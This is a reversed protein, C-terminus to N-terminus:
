IHMDSDVFRLPLLADIGNCEYIGETGYLLIRVPHGFRDEVGSIVQRCAGCPSIPTPMFRNGKRAAIALALVPQDPYQANAAFLTTREACLGSPYAANEQNAGTFVLGNALRAAAGVRFKSYPAYSGKTAEMAASVLERDSQSLEDMGYVRFLSKIEIEKM